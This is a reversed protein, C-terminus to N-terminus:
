HQKTKTIIKFRYLISLVFTQKSVETESTEIYNDISTHRFSSNNNLIDLVSFKLEGAKNAFVKKSLTANWVARSQEPINQKNNYFQFSLNTSLGVGTLSEYLFDFNYNHVFFSYSQLPHISYDARNWTYAASLDAFLQDKYHANFQILQNWTFSKTLNQENNIISIDKGLSLNTTLNIRTKWDREALPLLFGYNNNINIKYNDNTNVYQQLQIGQNNTYISNTIKNLTNSFTLGFILNSSKTNNFSKYNISAVNTFAPKLRSNGLKVFLPNSLDPTPQLQEVSPQLRSGTYSIHLNKQRAMNYMLSAIPHFTITRQTIDKLGAATNKNLIDNHQVSTGLQFHLKNKFYNYGLSFIQIQSIGKYDNTTLSDPMDYTDTLNNYNFTQLSTNNYSYNLTYSFDIIQNRGVPETYMCSMNSTNGNSLHNSRQKKVINDMLLVGTDYIQTISNLDGNGEAHNFGNDLIVGLYRGKKKFMHHYNIGITKNFINTNLHNNNNSNNIAFLTNDKEITSSVSNGNNYNSQQLMLSTRIEIKNFSDLQYTLNLSLRPENNRSNSTNSAEQILSSDQLFTKRNTKNTNLNIGIHQSYGTGFSLKNNIKHTYNVSFVKTKNGPLGGASELNGGQSGNVIMTTYRNATFHNASLNTFYQDKSGLRENLSGFIGNKKEQKLRLNIVKGANNDPIGTLKARESKENFVEVKDILDAPLNKTALTPDNFLLDKGDLFIKQIKEGQFIINGDKDIEIGPLKRLLEEVSSNSKTKFASPNYTLTDGKILVPPITSKIIVPILESASKELLLTGINFITDTDHIIISLVRKNYSVYSVNLLYKGTGANLIFGIKSNTTQSIITSDPLQLLKITAGSLPEATTSDAIRGHISYSKQQAYLSNSFLILLIFMIQIKSVM